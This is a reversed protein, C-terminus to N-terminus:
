SAVEAAADVRAARVIEAIEAADTTGDAIACDVITRIDASGDHGVIAAVERALAAADVTCEVGRDTEAVRLGLRSRLWDLCEDGLDDAQEHTLMVGATMMARATDDVRRARITAIQTETATQITM